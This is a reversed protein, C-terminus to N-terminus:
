YLWSVLTYREGRAVPSVEHVLDSRFVVLTGAVAPVALCDTGEYLKLIGGAFDDNLFVILSLVRRPSGDPMTTQSQDAHPAFFDSPRYHVTHTNTAATVSCEFQAAVRQGIALWRAELATSREVPLLGAEARRVSEDVYKTGERHVGAAISPREDIAAILVRCSDRDLFDTELHHMVM